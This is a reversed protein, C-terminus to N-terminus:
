VTNSNKILKIDTLQNDHLWQCFDMLFVQPMDDDSEIIKLHESVLVPLFQPNTVACYSEVSENESLRDVYYGVDKM